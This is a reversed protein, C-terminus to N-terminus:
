ESGNEKEEKKYESCDGVYVPHERHSTGNSYRKELVTWLYPKEDDPVPITEEWSEPPETKSSSVGYYIYETIEVYPIDVYLNIPPRHRYIVDVLDNEIRHFCSPCLCILEGFCGRFVPASNFLYNVETKCYYCKM